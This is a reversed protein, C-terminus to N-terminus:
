VFPYIGLLSELSKIANDFKEAMEHQEKWQQAEHLFQWRETRTRRLSEIIIQLEEKNM